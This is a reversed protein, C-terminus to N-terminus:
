PVDNNILLQSLLKAVDNEEACFQIGFYQRTDDEKKNRVYGSLSIDDGQSNPILLELEQDIAPRVGKADRGISIMCGQNSIDRVLCPVIHSREQTDIIMAAIRTQARQEARLGHSQISEPFSTFVLKSPKTIVITIKVKFAVIEGTEDELICRVIMSNNMYIAGGLGAWKSEDPFRFILNRNGDIGVFETKVRRKLTPSHIQLDVVMGPRMSRLKFLDDSSLGSNHPM